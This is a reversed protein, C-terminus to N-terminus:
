FIYYYINKEVGHGNRNDNLYTGEFIINVSKHFYTKKM